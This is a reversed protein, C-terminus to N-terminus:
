LSMARLACTEGRMTCMCSWPGTPLEAARAFYRRSLHPLIVLQFQRQNCLVLAGRQFSRRAIWADLWWRGCPKAYLVTHSWEESQEPIQQEHEEGTFNGGDLSGALTDDDGLYLRRILAKRRRAFAIRGVRLVGTFVDLHLESCLVEAVEKAIIM